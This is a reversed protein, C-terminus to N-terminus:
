LTGKDHLLVEAWENIYKEMSSLEESDPDCWHDCWDSASYFYEFEDCFQPLDDEDSSNFWKCNGCHRNGSPDADDFDFDPIHENKNNDM